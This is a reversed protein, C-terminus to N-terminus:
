QPLASHQRSQISALRAVGDALVVKHTETSTGGLQKNLLTLTDRSECTVEFGEPVEVPKACTTKLEYTKAATLSQRLLQAYSTRDLWRQRTDTQVSAKFKPTLFRTATVVDRSELNASFRKVTDAAIAPTLATAAIPENKGTAALLTCPQDQISTRGSADTCVNIAHAANCSLLVLLCLASRTM